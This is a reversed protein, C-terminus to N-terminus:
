RLRRTPRLPSVALRQIVNDHAEKHAADFSDATVTLDVRALRGKANPLVRAVSTGHTTTVDVKLGSGELLSDGRDVIGYFDVNTTVADIGPVGLVYVVDYLGHSGAHPGAEGHAFVPVVKLTNYETVRPRSIQISTRAPGPVKRPTVRGQHPSGGKKKARRQNTAVPLSDSREPNGTM